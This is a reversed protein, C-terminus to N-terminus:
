LFPNTSKPKNPTPNNFFSTSSVNSPPSAWPNLAVGKSPANGNFTNTAKGFIEPFSFNYNKLLRSTYTVM